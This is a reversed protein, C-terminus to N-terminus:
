TLFQESWEKLQQTIGSRARIETAKLSEQLYYQWGGVHAPAQRFIKDNQVLWISWSATVIIDFAIDKPFIEALFCCEDFSSIGRKRQPAIKNWCQRAFNCDWFLHSLTEETNEACLACSYSQLTMKKRKLLNRTNVRDHFLLWFFIKHTLRNSSKWLLKFLHHSTSPGKIAKYTQIASFKPTNAKLSWKDPQDPMQLEDLIIQLQNFQDYAQRSLPRHFQEELSHLDM